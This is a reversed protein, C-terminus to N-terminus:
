KVLRAGRNGEHIKGTIKKFTENLEHSSESKLAYEPVSSCERLVEKTEETLKEGLAITYIIINNAKMASCVSLLRKDLEKRGADRDTTGLKGAELPGYSSYKETIENKGDTILIVFKSVNDTYDAPLNNANMEGGWLGRWKPSLMRWAWGAGEIIHTAASAEMGDISATLLGQNATLPAVPEEVCGENPGFKHTLNTHFAFDSGTMDCNDHDPANNGHWNNDNGFGCPSYYKKFLAASPPEDTIDYDGDTRAEVCGGWSDDGWQHTDGETWAVNHTGINVSKSFPVIGVYLTDDATKRAFFDAIFNKTFTRLDDMSDQMSGTNDLVLVLEANLDNIQVATEAYVNLDENKFIRTFTAPLQAKSRVDMRTRTANIDVEFDYIKGNIYNSFNTEAYRRVERKALDPDDMHKAAALAASDLTASLRSQTIQARGLDTATGIVGILAMGLAAMLPLAAGKRNRIFYKIFSVLNM